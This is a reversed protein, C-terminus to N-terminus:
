IQYHPGDVIKFTGGWTVGKTKIIDAFRRFYKMDWSLTKDLKLFGIDFAESPLKNHKSQGAKANTVIKGKTTRGQAYLASQEDNSRHVCTLFPQPDNPYLKRYEKEAYAWATQLKPVADKINRTPM